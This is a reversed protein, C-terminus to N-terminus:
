DGHEHRHHADATHRHRHRVAEHAHEHQHAGVFPPMHEHHHHGDTRGDALHVHTHTHTQSPHQHDHEHDLQVRGRALAAYAVLVVALLTVALGAAVSLGRGLEAGGVAALGLLAGGYVLRGGLSLLSLFTARREQEVHGGVVAPVLVSATAGHVGRLALFPLLALSTFATMSLLIGVPVVAAGLLTAALGLRRALPPVAPAVLAGIVAVAAATAGTALAARRPDSLAAGLVDALYPGTLESALHVTVVQAVVYLGIWTLPRRGLHRVVAVLDRGPSPRQASVGIGEARPPEVLRGSVVLQVAAAALSLVFPLRLDALGVAGGILATAATMLLLGRRAEAEREEFEEARGLAELTDFHLTVDTGSLCAYGAALLIQAVVVGSLGVTSPAVVFLLHAGLWCVAVLRLTLVRGLRDSLWGSPVECVVVAAYYVAQVRLATALGFQEVLFLFATPMWFLAGAVVQHRRYWGLSGTLAEGSSM